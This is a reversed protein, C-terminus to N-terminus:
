ACAHETGAPTCRQARAPQRRSYDLIRPWPAGRGRAGASRLLAALEGYSDAPEPVSDLFRACALRSEERPRAMATSIAHAISTEDLPDCLAGLGFERHTAALAPYNPLVMALGFYAFEFLKNPACYVNNLATPAYLLLGARCGATVALHRPPAVRPLFVIRGDRGFRSRLAETAPGAGGGMVIFGWDPRPLRTFASLAQELCRDSGLIGQYILFETAEPSGGSQLFAERAASRQGMDPLAQVPLRNPVVAFTTTARASMMWARNIEPVVALHARRLFATQVREELSGEPYMEHAHGVRLCGPAGALWHFRMGHAAHYWMVGPRLRRVLGRVTGAFKALSAARSWRSEALREMHHTVSTVGFRDLYAGPGEGCGLAAVTVEAGAASLCSAATLLPPLHDVIGPYVMLVKM